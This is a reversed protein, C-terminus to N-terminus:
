RMAGSAELAFFDVASLVDGLRRGHSRNLVTVTNMYVVVRRVEIGLGLGRTLSSRSSIFRPEGSTAVSGAHMRTLANRRLDPVQHALGFAIASALFARADIAVLSQLPLLKRFPDRTLLSATNGHTCSLVSIDSTIVM